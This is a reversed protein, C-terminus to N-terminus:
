DRLKRLTTKLGGIFDGNLKRMTHIELKQRVLSVTANNCGVLESIEKDSMQKNIYHEYLWERDYLEKYKPTQPMLINGEILNSKVQGM